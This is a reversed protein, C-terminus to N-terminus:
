RIGMERVQLNWRENCTGKDMCIAMKGNVMTILEMLLLIDEKEMNKVKKGNGMTFIKILILSNEKEMSSTKNGNVMMLIEILM